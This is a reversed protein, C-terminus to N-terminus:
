SSKLLKQWKKNKRYTRLVDFYRERLVKTQKTEGFRDLHSSYISWIKKLLKEQEPLTSPIPNIAKLVSDVDEDNDLGKFPAVNRQYVKSQM